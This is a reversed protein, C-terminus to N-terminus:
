TPDLWAAVREVVADDLAADWSRPWDIESGRARGSLEGARRVAERLAEVVGEVSPAAPILNPSIARLTAADKNAFTSTVAAMGAAAMELPVLSPHPTDMLAMGVSFQGLTDAYERQGTRPLLELRRGGPLELGPLPKVTGIGAFRWDGEFVGATAAECLAVFGLEFMNRAAHEEPRAYFLLARAPRSALERETVPGVPTIASRFVVSDRVGEAHGAAFVGVRRLRFFDALPQTSFIARHPLGYAERGIAAMSGNPFTLPDYDQILHVFRERGVARSAQHAVRATWASTALFTDRPSVELPREADRAFEVEIREFAGALGEYRELRARWDAPLRPQPHVTVLRVRIGRDTLRRALNFLGLYGGFFHPLDIIPLVINARPPASEAVRLDLPREAARVTEVRVSTGPDTRPALLWAAGALVLASGALGAILAVVLGGDALAVVAALAAGFPLAGLLVAAKARRDTPALAWRLRHAV